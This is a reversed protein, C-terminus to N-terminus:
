MHLSLLQGGEKKPQILFKINKNM